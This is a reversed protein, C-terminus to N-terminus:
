SPSGAQPEDAEDPQETPVVHEPQEVAATEEGEGTSARQDDPNPESM